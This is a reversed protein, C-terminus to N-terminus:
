SAMARRSVQAQLRAGTFDRVRLTVCGSIISIHPETGCQGARVTRKGMWSIRDTQYRTERRVICPLDDIFGHIDAKIDPWLGNKGKRSRSGGSLLRTTDRRM